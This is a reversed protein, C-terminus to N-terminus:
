EPAAPDAFAAAQMTFLEAYLGDAAMLEDHSGHEAIRGGSLVYIRDVSRVTSFRHSILLVTRGSYLSRISDFLEAESRADLSATPEDLILFPADRFFARALAVRQWQGLSLDSGGYFEAGLLTEYGDALQELFRDAAARQAAEVVAEDDDRDDWRGAAINERASLMYKVYDQFIVGVSNRVLDADYTAIDVGDWRVTGADPTYLGALLRALTTKGSGNEGVLAVVEGEHIELSVGTLAPESRSPYTFSVGDVTLTDFGHPPVGVARREILAPMVEVFTTFDEIFLSSEYLSGTSGALIQLRQALLVVAGAAAGASALELRDTSVFWVLLAVSAATLASTVVGGFLGLRLRRRVLDRMQDIRDEYLQEYTRRFPRALGFARIEAAEEKRSLVGEIYDRRRDRETQEVTFQYAAKSARATAIWLPVYALLVIVVFIPEIFLLAAAIGAISIGASMLGLVGTAMQAPRTLANVHARQLRNHFAPVEYALLDVSTAVELVQDTAHRAVLESLLRQQEVRALNAFALTASLGALAVLWPVVDGFDSGEGLTLVRELLHRGVLVQGALGFGAVIQLAASLLFERRAARWVLRIAGGVLRPLRRIGRQRVPLLLESLNLRDSGPVSADDTPATSGSTTTSM